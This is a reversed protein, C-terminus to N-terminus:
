VKDTSSGNSLDFISTEPKSRAQCKIALWVGLGVVAVVVITILLLALTIFFAIKYDIDSTEGGRQSNPPINPTIDEMTAATPLPQGGQSPTQISPTPPQSGESPM